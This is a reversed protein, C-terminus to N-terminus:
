GVAGKRELPLAGAVALDPVPRIHDVADNSCRLGPPMSFSLFAMMPASVSSGEDVGKASLAPMEFFRMKWIARGGVGGQVM